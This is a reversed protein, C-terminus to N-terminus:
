PTVFEHEPHRVTLVPCPAKRVVNEAVSGILLHAIAGRGHTGMVILDIAERAAYNVITLFPPGAETVLCACYKLRETENLMLAMQTDSERRAAQEFDAMSVAYIEAAWPQEFPSQIAHLLHICAGFRDALATAYRLAVKSPESFDTPVLIHKLAIASM